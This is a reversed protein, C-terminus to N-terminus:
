QIHIHAQPQLCCCINLINKVIQKTISIGSYHDIIIFHLGM